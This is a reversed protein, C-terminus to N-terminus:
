ASSSFVLVQLSLFVINKLEFSSISVIRLKAVQKNIKNLDKRINEVEFQGAILMGLCFRVFGQFFRYVRAFSLANNRQRWEKDLKIIEDVVEVSAFRHRQSERILEPNHGKEERFLNIDLM